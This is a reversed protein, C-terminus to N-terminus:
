EMRKKTYILEDIYLTGNCGNECCKIPETLYWYAKGMIIDM